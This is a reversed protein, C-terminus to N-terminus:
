FCKTKAPDSICCSYSEQSIKTNSNGTESVFLVNPRKREARKEEWKRAKNETEREGECVLKLMKVCNLSHNMYLNPCFSPAMGRGQWYCDGLARSSQHVGFGTVVSFCFCSCKTCFLFPFSIFIIMQSFFYIGENGSYKCLRMLISISVCTTLKEGAIHASNGNFCLLWVCADLPFIHVCCSNNKRLIAVNIVSNM